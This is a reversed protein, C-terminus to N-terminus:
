GGGGVAVGLSSVPAQPGRISYGFLSPASTPIVNTRSARTKAQGPIGRADRITAMPRQDLLVRELSRTLPSGM